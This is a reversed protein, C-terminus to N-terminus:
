FSGKGITSPSGRLNEGLDRLNSARLQDGGDVEVDGVDVDGDVVLVLSTNLVVIVCIVCFSRSNSPVVVRVGKDNYSHEAVTGTHDTALSSEAEM